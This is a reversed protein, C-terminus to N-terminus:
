NNFRYNVGIRAIHGDNVVHSTLTSVFIVYNHSITVDSSGLDYYLYEGKVSWNDSFAWELGGGITWGTSVGSSTAAVARAPMCAPCTSSVSVSTKGMALGGTAYVLLAPTPSLGLRGRLTAFWELSSSGALTNPTSPPISVVSFRDHSSVGQIDAEVGYVLMGAQRGYGIQGGGLIGDPELPMGSPLRGLELSTGIGDGGTDTGTFRASDHGAGTFGFNAGLYFGSWRDITQYPSADSPPRLRADAAAAGVGAMMAVAVLAIRM